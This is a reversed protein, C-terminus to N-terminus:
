EVEAGKVFEGTGANTYFMNNVKDYLGVVNDSKRYCPIFDRILKKSKDYFKCYYLKGYSMNNTSGDNVKLLEINKAGDIHESFTVTTTKYTVGDIILYGNGSFTCAEINYKKNLEAKYTTATYNSYVDLVFYKNQNLSFYSRYWTGNTKVNSGILNTWGTSSSANGFATLEIELEANWGETDLLGTNIYQTGTAEIYEVRKYESDFVNQGINYDNENVENNENEEVFVYEMTKTTENIKVTFELIKKGNEANKEQFVCNQIGECIKITSNLYIAKRKLEYTNGNVFTIKKGQEIKEIGNGVTKSETLLYLNIKQFETEFSVDAVDEMNNKFYTTIRIITASVVIVVAIYIVLSTLTIGKSNKM